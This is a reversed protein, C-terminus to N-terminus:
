KWAVSGYETTRMIPLVKGTAVEIMDITGSDLSEAILWKSDPSWAVPTESYQGAGILRNNTGDPNILHLPGAYPQTYALQTGDPSWAAYNGAVGWASVTKTAYDFVKILGGNAFAVKSGDPSAAPHRTEQGPAILNGLLEPNTGDIGSRFLCYAYDSCRSDYASFYLVPANASPSPEAQHSMTAPRSPFFTSVKGSADVTRLQQLGDVYDTYIITSTGPVWRPRPGIGGDRVSVVDHFGSGDLNITVIRLGSSWGTLAALTGQPVVSLHISASAGGATGTLV